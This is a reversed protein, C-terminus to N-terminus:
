IRITNIPPIHLIFNTRIENGKDLCRRRILLTTEPGRQRWYTLQHKMRLVADGDVFRQFVRIKSLEMSLHVLVDYHLGVFNSQELAAYEAEFLVSNPMGM